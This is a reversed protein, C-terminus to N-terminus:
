AKKRGWGYLGIGGLILYGVWNGIGWPLFATGQNVLAEVGPDAKANYAPSYSADPVGQGDRPVESDRVLTGDPATWLVEGDPARDRELLAGDLMACSALVLLPALLLAKM